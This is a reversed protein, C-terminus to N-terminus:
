GDPRAAPKNPKSGAAKSFSIALRRLLKRRIVFANEPSLVAYECFEAARVPKPQKPKM